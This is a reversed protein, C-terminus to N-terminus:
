NSGPAWVVNRDVQDQLWALREKLEAAEEASLVGSGMRYRVRREAINLLGARKTAGGDVAITLTFGALIVKLDSADPILTPRVCM